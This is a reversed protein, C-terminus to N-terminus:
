AAKLSFVFLNVVFLCIAEFIEPRNKQTITVSPPASGDHIYLLYCPCTFTCCFILANPAFPAM